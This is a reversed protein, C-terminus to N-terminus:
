YMSPETKDNRLNLFIPFRLSYGGQENQSMEFYQVEIIHGIYEDQHSYIYDRQEFSYGGGVDVIYINGDPAPLEVKLAGLRGKNVGSGEEMGVCKLDCTQMKKVKLLGRSRKCEYPSDSLNIMVGEGGKSTIKNLWYEIESKDNGVYLMEVEKLWKSNGNMTTFVNHLTMKRDIASTRSIGSKFEKIKLMDFINFIINKKEGDANVVKVTARYLDKSELNDDNRLLLEGDYVYGPLLYNQVDKSLDDLGELLQGQRSFFEVKDGDFICVGRLGDLKTTLLFDVGNPVYKDPNDFYKDALMVDFSPIFDPGFIKNLTIPQIGLKFDKSVIKYILDVYQTLNEAYKEVIALDQDRGTNHNEIYHLLEIINFENPNYILCKFDEPQRIKKLKKKSIGTVVYPNFIFNIIEKIDKDEKYESLINEKEKRSGVVQNLKEILDNFRKINSDVM